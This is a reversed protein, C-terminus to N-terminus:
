KSLVPLTKIDFGNIVDYNIEIENKHDSYIDESIEQCVASLIYEEYEAFASEDLEVRMAIYIGGSDPKIMKCEGIEMKMVEDEYSPDNTFGVGFTMGNPEYSAAGDESLLYLADFSVGSQIDAYIDNALTNKTEKEEDTLAVPNGDVDYFVADDIYINKVTFFNKEYYKKKDEETVSYPGGEAILMEFGKDYYVTMELQNLLDEEGIGLKGSYELFAEESDFSEKLSTFNEKILKNDEETLTAGNKKAYDVVWVFQAMDEVTMRTLSEGVSENRGSPADQEWIAPSDEITGLYNQLFDNKYSVLEARFAAPSLITDGVKIAADPEKEGCSTLILLLILSFVYFIKKM